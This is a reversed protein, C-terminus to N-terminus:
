CMNLSVLCTRAKKVANFKNRSFFESDMNANLNLNYGLGGTVFAFHLHRKLLSWWSMFRTEHKAPQKLSLKSLWSLNTIDPKENSMKYYWAHHLLPQQHCIEDSNTTLYPKFGFILFSLLTLTFIEFSSTKVSALTPDTKKTADIGNQEKEYWADHISLMYMKLSLALIQLSLISSSTLLIPKQASMSFLVVFVSLNTTSMMNKSLPWFFLIAHYRFCCLTSSWRTTHVSFNLAENM